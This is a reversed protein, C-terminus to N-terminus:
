DDIMRHRLPSGASAALLGEGALTKGTVPLSARFPQTIPEYLLLALGIVRRVGLSTDDIWRGTFKTKGM